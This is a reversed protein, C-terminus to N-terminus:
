GGRGVGGALGHGLILGVANDRAACVAFEAGAVILV